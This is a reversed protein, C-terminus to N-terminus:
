VSANQTAMPQETSDANAIQRAAELGSRSGAPRTLAVYSYSSPPQPAQLRSTRCYSRSSSTKLGQGGFPTAQMAGLLPLRERAESPVYGGSPARQMM